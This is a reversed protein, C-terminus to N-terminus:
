LPEEQLTEKTHCALLLFDLICSSFFNDRKEIIDSSRLTLLISFNKLCFCLLLINNCLPRFGAQCKQNHVLNEQQRFIFDTSFM